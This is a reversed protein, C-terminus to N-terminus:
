RFSEIVGIEGLAMSAHARTGGSLYAQGGTDSGHAYFGLAALGPGGGYHEKTSAHLDIRLEGGYRRAGFPLVTVFATSSARVDRALRLELRLSTPVAATTFGAGGNGSFAWAMTDVSTGLLVGTRPGRVGVEIGYRWAFGAGTSVGRFPSGTVSLDLGDEFVLGRERSAFRAFGRVGLGLCLGGAAVDPAGDYSLVAVPIAM